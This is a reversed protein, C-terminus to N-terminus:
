VDSKKSEPDLSNMMSYMKRAGAIRDGDGLNEVSKATMVFEGDSLMAPVKDEKPGGPGKVEGGEELYPIFGFDGPDSDYYPNVMLEYLQGMRRREKEEAMDAAQEDTPEGGMYGALLPLAAKMDFSGAPITKDSFLAQKEAQTRLLDEIGFTRTSAPTIVPAEGMIPVNGPVMQGSYIDAVQEFQPVGDIMLQQPQGMVAPSTFQTGGPAFMLDMGTVAEGTENLIGTNALANAKMYAFPLSSVAGYLAAREPNKQGLLKAIGYNTLGTTLPAKLAMPLAGFRSAYGGFLSGLGSGGLMAGIKPALYPAAVMAALPLVPKVAKVVNKIAKDFLGM